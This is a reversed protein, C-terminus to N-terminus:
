GAATASRRPWPARRATSFRHTTACGHEFPLLSTFLSAHSPGTIAIHAYAREFLTGTAALADIAPTRAGGRYAGVFDARLTDVVVLLLNPPMRVRAGRGLLRPRVVASESSGAAEAAAFGIELPRGEPWRIAV